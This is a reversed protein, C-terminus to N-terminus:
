KKRGKTPDPSRSGIPTFMFNGSFMASKDTLSLCSVERRVYREMVQLSFRLSETTCHGNFEVCVQFYFSDVGCGVRRNIIVAYGLYSCALVARLAAAAFHHRHMADPKFLRPYRSWIVERLEEKTAEPLSPADYAVINGYFIKELEKMWKTLLLNVYQGLEVGEKGEAKLRRLCLWM